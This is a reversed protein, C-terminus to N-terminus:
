PLEPPVNSQACGASKHETDELLRVAMQQLRVASVNKASYDPEIRGVIHVSVPEHGATSFMFRSPAFLADSGQIRIVVLPAKCLRAIKFAGKQFVAPARQRQRTGEPFVFLIGGNALFEEMKEMQEVMMTSFRGGTTSPIYGSMRLLWGFVPFSFFRTKVITKQRSFLAILILPDLYSVHNCILIASRVRCVDEDIQWGHMPFLCRVLGLFGRFFLWNVRQFCRERNRSVVALPLYLVVVFGIGAGLFYCWLLLTAGFAYLVRWVRRVITWGLGDAAYVM